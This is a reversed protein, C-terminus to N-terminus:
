ESFKNLKRRITRMKKNSLRRSKPLNDLEPNFPYSSIMEFTKWNDCDDKTPKSIEVNMKRDDLELSDSNGEISFSQTGNKEEVTNFCKPTLDAPVGHEM